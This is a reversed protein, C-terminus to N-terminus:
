RHCLQECVALELYVVARSIAPSLRCCTTHMYSFSIFFCLLMLEAVAVHAAAVNQAFLITFSLRSNMM